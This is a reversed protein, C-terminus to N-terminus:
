APAFGTGGTSVGRAAIDRVSQDWYHTRFFDALEAGTTIWIDDSHAAIHKLAEEFIRIRHPQSVLYAHLPICMV